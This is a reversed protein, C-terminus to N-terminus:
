IRKWRRNRPKTGSKVTTGKKYGIRNQAEATVSPVENLKVSKSRLPAVRNGAIEKTPGSKRSRKDRGRKVIKGPLVIPGKDVPKIKPQVEVQPEPEEEIVEEQVPEEPEEKALDPVPLGKEEAIQRILAQREAEQQRRYTEIYLAEEKTIGDKRRVM